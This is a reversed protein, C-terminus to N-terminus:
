ARRTGEPHSLFLYHNAGPIELSRGHPAGRRFQERDRQMVQTQYAFRIRLLDRQAENLANWVFPGLM